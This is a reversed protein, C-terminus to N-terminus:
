ISRTWRGVGKGAASGTMQSRWAAGPQRQVAPAPISASPIPREANDGNTVLLRGALAILLLALSVVPYWREMWAPVRRQRPKELRSGFSGWFALPCVKRWPYFGALVILIPLLPLGITWFVRPALPWFFMAATLGVYGAVLAARVTAEGRTLSGVGKAMQIQAVATM